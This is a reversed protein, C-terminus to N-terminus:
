KAVRVCPGLHSFWLLNLESSDSPWCHPLQWYCRSLNWGVVLLSYKWSIGELSSIFLGCARDIGLCCCARIMCLCETLTSIQWHSFTARFFLHFVADPGAPHGKAPRNCWQTSDAEDESVELYLLHVFVCTVQSHNWVASSPWTMGRRGKNWSPEKFGPALLRSVGDCVCCSDKFHNQYTALINWNSICKSLSKIQWCINSYSLIVLKFPVLVFEM